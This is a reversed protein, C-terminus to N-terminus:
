SPFLVEIDGAQKAPEQRCPVTEFPMPVARDFVFSMKSGVTENLFWFKGVRQVDDEGVDFSLSYECSSGAATAVTWDARYVCDCATTATSICEDERMLHNIVVLTHVAVAEVCQNDRLVYWDDCSHCLQEGNYFTCDSGTAM